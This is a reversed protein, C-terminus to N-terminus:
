LNGIKSVEAVAKHPVVPVLLRNFLSQVVTQIQVGWECASLLQTDQLHHRRRRHPHPHHRHYHHHHHHHHHPPLPPPPRIVIVIVTVILKCRM